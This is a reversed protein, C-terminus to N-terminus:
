GVFLILLPELLTVIRKDKEELERDQNDAVKLLMKDMCGTEEGVAFTHINLGPLFGRKGLSATLSMGQRVETKTRNICESLYTNTLTNQVIELSPVLPLGNEQLTGPTRAFRSTEM